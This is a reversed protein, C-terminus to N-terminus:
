IGAATVANAEIEGATRLDDYVVYARTPEGVQGAVTTALQNESSAGVINFNPNFTTGGGGGTSSPKTASGSGGSSLIRKAQAAAALVAAVQQAYFLPMAYAAFPGQGIATQQAIRLGSMFGIATDIGIQTLALTKALESGDKALVSLAGLASSTATM